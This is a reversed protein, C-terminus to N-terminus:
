WFVREYYDPREGPLRFIVRLADDFSVRDPEGPGIPGVTGVMMSFIATGALCVFLAGLILRRRRMLLPFDVGGDERRSLQIM